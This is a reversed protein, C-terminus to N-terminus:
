VKFKNENKLLEMQKMKICAKSFFNQEKSTERDKISKFTNLPQLKYETSWLEM